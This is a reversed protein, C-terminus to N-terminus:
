SLQELMGDAAIMGSSLAWSFENTIWIKEKEPTVVINGSANDGAAFLNPMPGEQGMVHCGADIPIGGEAGDSMLFTKVAYFPGSELPKLYIPNKGFDQDEGARCLENYREVTNKLTQADMGARQALEELTDAIILHNGKLSDLWRM